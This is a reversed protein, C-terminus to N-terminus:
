AARCGCSRRGPGPRPFITGWKENFKLLAFGGLKGEPFPQYFTYAAKALLPANTADLPHREHTEPDILEYRNGKINILAVPHDKYFGLLSLSDSKWWEPTLTVRRFRVKSYRCIERLKEHATLGPDLDKPYSFVLNTVHGIQRCARFLPDLVSTFTPLEEKQLISNMERMSDALLAQDFEERKKGKDIVEKKM